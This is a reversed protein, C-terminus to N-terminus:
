KKRERENRDNQQRIGRDCLVIVVIFAAFFISIGIWTWKGGGGWYTLACGTVGVLFAILLPLQSITTKLKHMGWEEKPLLVGHEELDEISM